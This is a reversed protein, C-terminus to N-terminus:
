INKKGLTLECIFIWIQTEVSLLSFAPWFIRQAFKHYEMLLWEEKGDLKKESKPVELFLIDANGVGGQKIAIRFSAKSFM